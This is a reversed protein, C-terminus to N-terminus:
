HKPGRVISRRYQTRQPKGWVTQLGGNIARKADGISRPLDSGVGPRHLFNLSHLLLGPYFEGVALLRTNPWSWFWSPTTGLVLAAKPKPAANSTAKGAPAPRGASGKRRTIGM